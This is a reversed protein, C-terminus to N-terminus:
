KSTPAELCSRIMEGKLNFIFWLTDEETELDTQIEIGYHYKHDTCYWKAHWNLEVEIGIAQLASVLNIIKQRNKETLFNTKM